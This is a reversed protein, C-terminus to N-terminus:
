QPAAPTQTEAACLDGVMPAVALFGPDLPGTGLGENVFAVLQLGDCGGGERPAAMVVGNDIAAVTTWGQQEFLTEYADFVTQLEGITTRVCAAALNLGGCDPAAMAGALLPLGSPGAQSTAPSAEQAFASGTAILATAISWATLGKLIM